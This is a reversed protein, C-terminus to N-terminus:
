KKKLKRPQPHNHRADWIEKLRTKEDDSITISSLFNQPNNALHHVNRFYVELNCKWVAPRKPGCLPCTVPVNSCPSASTSTTAVATNETLSLPYCIKNDVVCILDRSTSM